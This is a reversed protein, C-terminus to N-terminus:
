RPLYALGTQQFVFAMMEANSNAFEAPDNSSGHGGRRWTRFLIPMGSTSADRLRATFKRGHFPPCGMDFEGMIQLVAPYRRGSAINHYPSYAFLTPAYRPDQPDGYDERFVARVREAEEGADPQVPEMMDLLPAQAITATFLDPRQVAAV